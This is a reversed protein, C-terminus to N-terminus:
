KNSKSGKTRLQVPFESGNIDKVLGTPEGEHKVTLGPGDGYAGVLLTALSFVTLPFQVM